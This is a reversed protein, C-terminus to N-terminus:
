SIWRLVRTIGSADLAVSDQLVTNGVTDRHTLANAVPPDKPNNFAAFDTVNFVQVEYSRNAGPFIRYWDQDTVPGSLDELDHTQAPATHILVNQTTAATNDGSGDADWSDKASVNGSMIFLVMVFSIFYKM